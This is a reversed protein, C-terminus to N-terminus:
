IYHQQPGRIISYQRCKNRLWTPWDGNTVEAMVAASLQTCELSVYWRGPRAKALVSLSAVTTDCTVRIVKLRCHRSDQGAITWKVLRPWSHSILDNAHNSDTIQISTVFSHIQSRHTTSTAILAALCEAPMLELLRPVQHILDSLPMVSASDPRRVAFHHKLKLENETSDWCAQLVCFLCGRWPRSIEAAVSRFIIGTLVREQISGCSTPNGRCCHCVSLPSAVHCLMHPCQALGYNHAFSHLAQM